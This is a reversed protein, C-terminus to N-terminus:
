RFNTVDDCASVEAQTPAGGSFDPGYEGDVGACWLLYPATSAAQESISNGDVVVNTILGDPGLSNTTEDYLDGLMARM